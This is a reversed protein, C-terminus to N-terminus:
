VQHMTPIRDPRFGQTPKNLVMSNVKFSKIILCRRGTEHPIGGTVAFVRDLSAEGGDNSEWTCDSASRWRQLTESQCPHYHRATPCRDSPWLLSFGCTLTMKAMSPHSQYVTPAVSPLGPCITDSRTKKITRNHCRLLTKRWTAFKKLSHASAWSLIKHVMQAGTKGM